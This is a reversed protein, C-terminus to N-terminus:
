QPVIIERRLRDPDIQAIAALAVPDHVVIDIHDSTTVIGSRGLRALMRCVHVATLGTFDGLQMQTLPLHFRGCDAGSVRSQRLCLEILAYAIRAEASGRGLRLMRESLRSLSAAHSRREYLTLAPVEARLRELAADPVVSLRVDTLAVIEVCSIDMDACCPDLVDGPLAFDVIQRQGSDLTKYVSLWGALVWYHGAAPAGELKLTAGARADRRHDRLVREIAAASPGAARLMEALPAPHGWVASQAQMRGSAIAETM